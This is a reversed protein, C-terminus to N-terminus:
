LRDLLHWDIVMQRKEEKLFEKYLGEKPTPLGYFLFLNRMRLWKIRENDRHKDFQEQLELYQSM